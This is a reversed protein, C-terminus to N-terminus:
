AWACSKGKADIELDSETDSHNLDQIKKWKTTSLFPFDSPIYTRKGEQRIGTSDRGTQMM